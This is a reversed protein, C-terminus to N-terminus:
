QEKTDSIREKYKNLKFEAKPHGYLMARTYFYIVVEPRSDRERYVAWEYLSSADNFMEMAKKLPVGRKIADAKYKTGSITSLYDSQVYEDYGESTIKGVFQEFYEYSKDHDPSVGYGYLYMIAANHCCPAYNGKSGMEFYRLAEQLLEPDTGRSDTFLKVGLRCASYSDGREAAIKMFHYAREYSEATYYRRAIASLENMDMNYPDRDAVEADLAHVIMMNEIRKSGDACLNRVSKWICKEYCEMYYVLATELDKGVEWGNEYLRALQYGGGRKMFESNENVSLLLDRAQAYDKAVCSGDILMGAYAIKGWVSGKQAATRYDDAAIQMDKKLLTGKEHIFGSLAWADPYNKEMGQDLCFLSALGYGGDDDSKGHAQVAANYWEEGSFNRIQEEIYSIMNKREDASVSLGSMDYFIRYDEEAVAPMSDLRELYTLALAYMVPRWVPKVYPVRLIYANATILEIGYSSPKDKFKPAYITILSSYESIAENQPDHAVLESLYLYWTLIKVEKHMKSKWACESATALNQMGKEPKGREAYRCYELMNTEWLESYTQANLIGPCCVYLCFLLIILRTKMNNM